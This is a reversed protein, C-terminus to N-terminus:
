ALKAYICSCMVKRVRFYLNGLWCQLDGRLTEEVEKHQNINYAGCEGTHSCTHIHTHIIYTYIYTHTNHIYIYTHIIYTHIYTHTHIDHIYTYIYIYIYTCIYIYIYTCIYGQTTGM